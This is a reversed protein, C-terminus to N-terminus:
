PATLRDAVTRRLLLAFPLCALSLFLYIVFTNIWNNQPQNRYGYYILDFMLARNYFEDATLPHMWFWFRVAEILVGALFLLFYRNKLLGLLQARKEYLFLASFPVFYFLLIYPIRIEYLSSFLISIGLVLATGYPFSRVLGRVFPDDQAAPLRRLTLYGLPCLIWLPGFTLLFFGLTEVPVKLNLPLGSPIPDYYGPWALRYVALTAVPLLAPLLRRRLPLPDAVLFIFPMLLTTERCFVAAVCVATFAAIRRREQLLLAALMLSFGLLDNPAGRVPYKVFFLIPPSSLFLTWSLGLLLWRTREDQAPYLRRLLARMLEGLLFLTSAMFLLLFISFAYLAAHDQDIGLRQLGAYAMWVPIRGLIRYKYPARQEWMWDDLCTAQNFDRCSLEYRMEATNAICSPRVVLAHFLLLLGSVALSLAALLLRRNRPESSTNM